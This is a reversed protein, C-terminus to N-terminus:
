VELRSARSTDLATLSVALTLDLPSAVGVLSPVGEIFMVDISLTQEVQAIVLGM